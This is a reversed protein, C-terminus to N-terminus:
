SLPSTKETEPHFQYLTETHHVVRHDTNAEVKRSYSKEMSAGYM